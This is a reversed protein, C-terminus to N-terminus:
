GGPRKLRGGSWWDVLLCKIHLAWWTPDSEATPSNPCGDATAETQRIGAPADHASGSRGKPRWPPTFTVIWNDSSGHVAEDLTNPLVCATTWTVQSAMRWRLLRHRLQRSAQAQAASPLGLTAILAAGVLVGLYRTIRHHFTRSTLVTYRM